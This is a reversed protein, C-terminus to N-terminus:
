AVERPRARWSEDGFELMGGEGELRDVLAPRLIEALGADDENTTLITPRGYEIRHDIVDYLHQHINQGYFAHKSIEDIVLFDLARYHALVKEESLAERDTWSERLRRILDACKVVEATAGHTGAIVKAVSYVTHGKGTGYSGRFVLLADVKPWEAIYRRMLQMVRGQTRRNKENGHFQFSELTAGEYKPPVKLSAAAHLKRLEALDDTRGESSRKARDHM